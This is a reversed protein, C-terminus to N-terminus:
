DFTTFGITLTKPSGGSIANVRFQSVKGASTRVCVYSGVPLDSLSVRSANYHTGAACGERGRNSRDGVWMRAGNQPTLYLLSATEAEFWLDAGGSSGVAGTDLDFQYTQPVSMSGTKGTTVVPKAAANVDLPAKGLAKGADGVVVPPMVVRKTNCEFGKAKAICNANEPADRQVSGAPGYVCMLAPKGGINQIKTETLSNVIPTTWWGTPLENTVTRRAQTLPCNITEANASAAFAFFAAAAAIAGSLLRM